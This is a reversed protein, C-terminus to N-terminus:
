RTASCNTVHVSDMLAVQPVSEYKQPYIARVLVGGNKHCNSITVNVLSTVCSSGGLQVAASDMARDTCLLIM